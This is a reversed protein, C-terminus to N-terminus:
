VAACTSRFSSVRRSPSCDGETCSGESSSLSRSSWRIASSPMTAASRPRGPAPARITSWTRASARSIASWRSGIAGLQAARVTIRSMSGITRMLWSIPMPMSAAVNM